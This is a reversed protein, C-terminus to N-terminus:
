VGITRQPRLSITGDELTMPDGNSLTIQIDYPHLKNPLILVTDEKKLKFKLRVTKYDATANNAIPSDIQNVKILTAGQLAKETVTAMAGGTFTLVVGASITTPLPYVIIQAAGAAQIGNATVTYPTESDIVGQANDNVTTIHKQFLTTTSTDTATNPMVTLYANNVSLGTPIGGVTRIIDFADGVTRKEIKNDFNPM